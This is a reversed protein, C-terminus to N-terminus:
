LKIALLAVGLLILALAALKPLLHHEHFVRAGLAFSVVCNSRRVLSLVSIQIDPLSVAYFYCFDAAILLVGTAAVTWHWRFPRVVDNRCALRGGIWWGAGLIPILNLSFYWQVTLPSIHLVNMLYKDYLAAGAGLLTGALIARIGRHRRWDINDLKGCLAFICYGSFILLMALAQIWGPVEGYLLLGGIFVWVPSSARVPAAVSIPLERMAYYVCGWSAAVLLAKGFILWWEMGTCAFAAGGKGAAALGCALFVCGSLNAYFLVPGVPNDGVARKKAVDYLGLLLASALTPVFWNSWIGNLVKHM